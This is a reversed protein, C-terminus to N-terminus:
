EMDKNSVVTSAERPMITNSNKLMEIANSAELVRLELM